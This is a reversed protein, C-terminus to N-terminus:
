SDNAAVSLWMRRLPAGAACAERAAHAHSLADALVADLPRAADLVTWTRELPDAADVERLLRYKERVRKQFDSEEYIEDGYSARASAAAPDLDLFLVLDPQPLGSDPAKCWSETMNPKGKAWSYAVGSFCYRDCVVMKGAALSEEILDKKEWRNASMVLHLGEDALPLKKSLYLDLVHGVETSRDPFRLHVVEGGAALSEVMAKGLTTKGSRDIGELVILAGRKAAM